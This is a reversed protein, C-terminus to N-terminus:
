LTARRRFWGSLSLRERSAPRVEHDFRESLFAVLTGAAPSVDVPGTELYLRLAGGDSPRWAANLYLVLSVVRESGRPSRDRHRQYVAGLPYISYHCEFQAIGLQLERNLAERLADFVLLLAAEIGTSENVWCIRDGRIDSRVVRGRGAGVAGLKFDGDRDRARARLELQRCYELPIAGPWVGWGPGALAEILPQALDVDAPPAARPM